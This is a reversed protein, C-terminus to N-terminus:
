TTDIVEASLLLVKMSLSLSFSRKPQRHRFRGLHHRVFSIVSPRRPVPVTPPRSIGGEVRLCFISSGGKGDLSKVHSIRSLHRERGALHRRFLFFSQRFLACGFGVLLHERTMSM